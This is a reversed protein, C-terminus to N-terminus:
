NGEGGEAACDHQMLMMFAALMSGTAWFVTQTMTM